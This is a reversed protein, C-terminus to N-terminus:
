TYGQGPEYKGASQAWTELKVPEDPDRRFITHSTRRATRWGAATRLWEDHHDHTRHPGEFPIPGDATEFEIDPTYYITHYFDCTAHDADIVDVVFNTVVHRITGTGLAPKLAELIGDRGNLHVSMAIWEVDETFLEVAKDFERHDVHWYYKAILKEIEQEIEREQERGM